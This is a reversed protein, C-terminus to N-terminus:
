PTLRKGANLKRHASHVLPAGNPIMACNKPQLGFSLHRRNNIRVRTYDIADAMAIDGATLPRM